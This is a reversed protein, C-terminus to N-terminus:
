LREGLRLGEAREGLEVAVARLEEECPARNEDLAPGLLEGEWEDEVREADVGVLLPDEHQLAAALAVHREERADAVCAADGIDDDVVTVCRAALAGDFRLPDDIPLDTLDCSAPARDDQCGVELAHGPQPRAVAAALRLLRPLAVAAVSLDGLRQTHGDVLNELNRLGALLPRRPQAGPVRLRQASPARARRAATRVARTRQRHSTRAGARAALRRALPEATPAARPSLDRDCARGPLRRLRERRRQRLGCSRAGATRWGSRATHPRCPERVR